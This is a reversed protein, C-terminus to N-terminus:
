TIQLRCLVDTAISNSELSLLNCMGVTALGQNCAYSCFGPLAPVPCDFHHWSSLLLKGQVQKRDQIEAM